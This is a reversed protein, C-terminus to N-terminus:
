DQKPAAKILVSMLVSTALVGGIVGLSMGTTIGVWPEILMKVGIFCLIVALGIKLFRFLQMVGSLAFYLSRLGLIAFINSTLAVFGDKTIALVAPLSDLAFILDTTEVVILVVFLLTAVRRGNEEVFFKNGHFRDSVPFYKRFFRVAVNKAPDVEADDKAPLALKVGTYVLFAGFVYLLWHFRAIIEVGVLIFVGRMAVAGLIGWFLVRHQYRPEVKFFAFILIFVFVNDVSLCLEILYGALFQQGLEAGRWWWVLGGFGVALLAWVACWALAERVSVAHEKRQFVGLDLALMAAIFLFFGGWAWLPMTDAVAFIPMM